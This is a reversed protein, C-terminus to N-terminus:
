GRYLLAIAEAAIGEERGLYGLRENTKAKINVQGVAVGLDAAVHAVMTPIHPAMKPAQAIITADVNGVLYGAARVRGVAERLLVRSDAGAFEAATDPFHRGIDGLGAAGLLADTLAHLLVDADSHGLLGTAHPITVGGIVLKRGTVLAHCDYGQGIRFPPTTMETM